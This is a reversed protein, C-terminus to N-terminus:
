RNSAPAAPMVAVKDRVDKIRSQLTADIVDSGHQIRMGGVVAPDVSVHISVETGYMATLARQLREEQTATLPQAVLVSVGSVEGLEAAQAAYEMLSAALTAERVRALARHALVRTEERINPVVRDFLAAREEASYEERSLTIRLDPTEKLTRMLQYLEDEVGSLVGAGRARVLVAHAGLTDVTTVLDADETWTRGAVARLVALVPASVHAAFIASALSERAAGARTTDALTGRLSPSANIADAAAFLERALDIEQGPHEQLLADWEATVAAASQKSTSRM